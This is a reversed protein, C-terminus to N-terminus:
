SPDIFEVKVPYYGQLHRTWKLVTYSTKGKALLVATLLSSVWSVLSPDGCLMLFDEDPNFGLLASKVRRHHQKLTQKCTDAFLSKNFLIIHDSGWNYLKFFDLEPHRQVIFVTMENIVM